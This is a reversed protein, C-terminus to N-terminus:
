TLAHLHPSVHTYADDFEDDFALKQGMDHM